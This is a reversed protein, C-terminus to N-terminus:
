ETRKNLLDFVYDIEAQTLGEKGLFDLSFPVAIFKAIAAKVLEREIRKCKTKRIKSM